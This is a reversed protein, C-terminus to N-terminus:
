HAGTASGTSFRLPALQQMLHKCAGANVQQHATNRNSVIHTHYFLNLRQIFQKKIETPVFTKENQLGDRPGVERITVRPPLHEFM